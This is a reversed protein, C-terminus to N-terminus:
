VTPLVAITMAVFIAFLAYAVGAGFGYLNLLIIQPIVVIAIGFIVGLMYFAAYIMAKFLKTM